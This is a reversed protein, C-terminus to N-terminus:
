KKSYKKAKLVHIGLITLLNFLIFISTWLEKNTKLIFSKWPIKELIDILLFLIDIVKVILLSLFSEFFSIPIITMVFLCIFSALFLITLLEVLPLVLINALVSLYNLEAFNFIMIPLLFFQACCTLLINLLITNKKIFPEKELYNYLFVIGFSALFSFQFSLSELYFPNIILM